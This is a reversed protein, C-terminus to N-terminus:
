KIFIVQEAVLHPQLTFILIFDLLFILKWTLLSAAKQLRQMLRIRQIVNFSCLLVALAFMSGLGDSTSAFFVRRTQVHKRCQAQFLTLFFMSRAVVPALSAPSTLPLSKVVAQQPVQFRNKLCSILRHTGCRVATVSPDNHRPQTSSGLYCLLKCYTKCFHPPPLPLSLMYSYGM